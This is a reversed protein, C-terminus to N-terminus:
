PVHCLRCPIDKQKDLSSAFGPGHPSGGPGGVKHCGICLAEGAGGHCSACSLPDLRAARGHEGGVARVWGPPHPNKGLGAAVKKAEHCTTCTSEAHCTTCLAPAVRAEEPHRALFNGPHLRDLKPTDFALKWPLAATTKGHCAACASEAHCTACLDRAAAARVGHERVFDGDHVLHSDPRVHESPLDRHCAGCDRVNWQDKHQHCTFCQGMAPRLSTPDVAGAESHCPVCQGKVTPLHKAHAFKLHDRAAQAGQRISSQGHCEGCDRTDHPKTHCGTCTSTAPLSLPSTQDAQKVPAHCTLCNIGATTHARHEFPRSADRKKLGLIGACAGLAISLALLLLPAVRANM